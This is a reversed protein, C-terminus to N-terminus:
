LLWVCRHQRLLLLEGHRRRQLLLGAQSLRRTRHPSPRLAIQGVWACLRVCRGPPGEPSRKSLLAACDPWLARSSLVSKTVFCPLEWLYGPQQPLFTSMVRWIVDWSTICINLQRAPSRSILIKKPFFFLSQPPWSFCPTEGLVEGQPGCVGAPRRSAPRGPPQGTM